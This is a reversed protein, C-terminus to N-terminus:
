SFSDDHEEHEPEIGQGPLAHGSCMGRVVNELLRSVTGEFGDRWLSGCFTISGVSFVGGGGPLGFLVMDARILAEPARDDLTLAPGLLEEMVTFFTSPPNESTALLVADYPTGLRM